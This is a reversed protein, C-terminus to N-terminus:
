HVQLPTAPMEEDIVTFRKGVLRYVGEFFEARAAQYAELFKLVDHRCAFQPQQSLARIIRGDGLYAFTVKIDQPLECQFALLIEDAALGQETENHDIM